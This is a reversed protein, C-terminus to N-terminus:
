YPGVKTIEVWNKQTGGTNIAHTQGSNNSGLFNLTDGKLMRRSATGAAMKIKSSLTASSEICLEKASEGNIRYLIGVIDGITGVSASNTRMKCSISYVGDEPATFTWNSGTTVANHTDEDVANYNIINGIGVNQASTIYYRAYVSRSHRLRTRTITM